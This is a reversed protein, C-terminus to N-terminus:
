DQGHGGIFRMAGRGLLDQVESRLQDERLSWGTQALAAYKDTLVGTLMVRADHWKYILQELVRADSHQPTFSHGLLEIRMRTIEDTLSSVNVFWWCGFVHLNHFKRAVVCMEHQDERSLVTLLFRNDPFASCLNSVATLDARGVADGALRLQPNVQRRVGIMMAFPSGHEAAVPIVCKEILRAAPSDDPYHFGSPLSAALYVPRMRGIWDELFRRVEECTRGSLDLEVQYGMGRLVPAVRAWEILLADIRLAAKFREDCRVSKMWVPREADDFPDNTMVISRVKAIELVRDLHKGADTQGFYRRHKAIDRENPDLELQQLCTVVGRCAESIPSRRVFLNDWILEAQRPKPLSWFQDYSIEHGAVRFFEAVLYHFTLMEDIGWLLLGGFQPAYLHTHIDTIEAGDLARRVAGEIAARTSLDTM